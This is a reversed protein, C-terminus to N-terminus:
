LEGQFARHLLSHFLDDLRKRNATQAAELARLEAVHAAFAHQHEIPPLPIELGRVQQHNLAQRSAGAQVQLILYQTSPLSVFVSLYVPNLLDTKPRILCVHQSVNAERDLGAVWAVRGISAGTINLLVDGEAVKTRRMQDHVDNPLCVADSLDLRNMLVNQSRIFYPGENVYVADGGRPTVGSTVLSTLDGLSARRFEAFGFMDRFLAAIVETTREEAKARLRRLAEAEDLIRVLREQEAIPPLPVLTEKVDNETVAPYNAGRVLNVLHQVFEPSQSFYFLYRNNLHKSARLVCFGTSCIQDDMSAPVLAVANLAPRVTAVIVDGARM